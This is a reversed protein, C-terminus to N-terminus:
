RRVIHREGALSPALVPSAHCAPPGLFCHATLEGCHSAMPLLLRHRLRLRVTAHSRLWSWLGGECLIRARWFRFSSIRPSWHLHSASQSWGYAVLCVRQRCGTLCKRAQILRIRSEAAARAEAVPSPAGRRQGEGEGGHFRAQNCGYCDRTSGSGDTNM